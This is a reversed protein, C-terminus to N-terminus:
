ATVTGIRIHENEDLERQTTFQSLLSKVIGGIRRPTGRFANYIDQIRTYIFDKAIYYGVPSNTIGVIVRASDQRRVESNDTIAWELYQSLIWVENTCALSSLAVEKAAAVNAKRKRELMFRWEKVSGRRIAVCYVTRRLDLPIPNNTDPDAEKMWDNFLEVANEECGPMKSRCAWNSLLTQMKVSKMDEGNLIAKKSIGGSKLYQEGILQRVLKQFAGYETLRGVQMKVSKMDEGNLIAKKSLGGSKLYQEGILQRVFKQFAGYESTRKLSEIRKSLFSHISDNVIVLGTLRGVQMKVSKMDEGNLIVKKSLGGSKLYQEGILQRVFKQFAGYESTRKLSEIRKSPFLRISDNVILLGSLRRVQMKVSKMDEGNLIAKKSLGGSKLYQEGILQRVLKQFAGYESTRKLSEIRKSLFSRISDNVIVLGTLRGVQMKVSKMDKGNVIAKKSLGGSKLYQEGILQRVFKQFAGYESTRKLSEIRQSLFLRISDNVIVLGTLRGVQMKVSKMDEGNLIAKKSLGGSKLYQEGILQRVLKQFAGYESTPKLSEIRKSLFLRISDNVIVLGTLRCVQMKVSKMDEGNVIAKKSLGGSKLYQEGILQRVFKQMKVSKMDEGNLIAKKSLGGSKLYQEGILQRVFKQFAGYESTRKLVNGLKGLASLGTELPSLETERQLYNALRRLPTRWAQYLPHLWRPTIITSAAM